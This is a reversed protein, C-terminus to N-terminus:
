MMKKKFIMNLDMIRMNKTASTIVLYSVNLMLNQKVELQKPLWKYCLSYTQNRGSAPNKNDKQGETTRGWDPGELLYMVVSKGECCFLHKATCSRAFCAYYLLNPLFFRMEIKPPCVSALPDGIWALITMAKSLALQRAMNSEGTVVQATFNILAPYFFNM